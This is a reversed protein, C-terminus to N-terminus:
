EWELETFAVTANRPNFAEFLDWNASESQAIQEVADGMRTGADIAARTDRELVSLYRVQDAGGDPWALVPGGHGPVIQTIDMKVMESMVSLWGRLKGDLAPTHEAFVLDGTFMTSTTPDFVTVDTGTHATRWAKISLVRDGGLDVTITDSVTVDVATTQTGLFAAPGILRTLSEIYNEQRDALARALGAHGVIQAGAEELPAAGLVHDPHMHTLIVHSIPKDTQARVARWIAEGMWRASGSDIVAVSDSGIVFGINSVDGRNGSNPEEVLGKHVFVDPEIEIFALAPGIEACFPDGKLTLNQPVNQSLRPPRSTLESQCAIATDAEYGPLLQDRCVDESLSLCVTILAEFMAPGGIQVMGCLAARAIGDKTQTDKEDTKHCLVKNM